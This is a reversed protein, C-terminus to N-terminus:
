PERTKHKSITEEIAKQLNKLDELNALRVSAVADASLKTSNQKRVQFFTITPVNNDSSIFVVHGDTAVTPALYNLELNAPNNGQV